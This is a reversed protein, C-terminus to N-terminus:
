LVSKKLTPQEKTNEVIKKPSSHSRSSNM